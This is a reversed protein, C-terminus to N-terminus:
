SRTGTGAKAPKRPNESEGQPFADALCSLLGNMAAEANDADLLMEGAQEFSVNPHKARFCGYLLLAATSIKLDAKPSGDENPALEQALLQFPCGYPHREIAAMAGFNFVLHYVKGGIEADAKGFPAGM